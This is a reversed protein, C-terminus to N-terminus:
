PHKDAHQPASPDPDAAVSTQPHSTEFQQQIKPEQLQPTEPLVASAPRGAASIRRAGMAEGSQGGGVKALVWEIARQNHEPALTNIPNGDAQM